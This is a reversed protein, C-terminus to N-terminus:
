QREDVLPVLRIDVQEISIALCAFSLPVIEIFRLGRGGGAVYKALRDNSTTTLGKAAQPSLDRKWWLPYTRETIGIPRALALGGQCRSILLSVSPPTIGADSKIPALNPCALRGCSGAVAGPSAWRVTARM